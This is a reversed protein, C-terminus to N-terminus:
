IRQGEWLYTMLRTGRRREMSRKSGKGRGRGSEGEGEGEGGGMERQM